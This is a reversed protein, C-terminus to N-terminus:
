DLQLDLAPEFQLGVALEDAAAQGLETRVVRATTQVAELMYTSRTQRPIKLAVQVALGREGGKRAMRRLARNGALVVYCGGDSINETRSAGLVAARGAGAAAEREHITIPCALGYRVHRRREAGARAVGAEGSARKETV